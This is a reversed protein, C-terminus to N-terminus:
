VEKKEGPVELQDRPESGRSKTSECTVSSDTYTGATQGAWPM